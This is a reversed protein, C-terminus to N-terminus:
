AMPELEGVRFSAITVAPGGPRRTSPWAAIPLHGSTTGVIPGLALTCAGNGTVNITNANTNLFTLTGGLTLTNGTASTLPGADFNLTDPANQLALSAPTFPRPM